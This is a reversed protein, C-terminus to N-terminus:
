SSIMLKLCLNSSSSISICSHSFSKNCCLSSKSSYLFSVFELKFVIFSYISFILALRSVNSPSLAESNISM